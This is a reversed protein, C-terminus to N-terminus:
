YVESKKIRDVFRLSRAFKRVGEAVWDERQEDNLDAPDDSQKLHEKCYRLWDARWSLDDDEDNASGDALEQLVQRLAMPLILAQILTDSQLQSVLKPLSFNIQLVPGAADIKVRWTEQGLDLQEVPFLRRRGEPAQTSDPRIRNAAGLIRGSGETGEVVKLRFLVSDGPDIEDLRFEEPISSSGVTGLEFRMGQSRQYAEFVILSDAPFELAALEFSATARPPSSPQLPLMSVAIASQPIRKRGTYNIRRKIATM